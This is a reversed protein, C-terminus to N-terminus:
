RSATSSGSLYIESGAERFEESKKRLGAEIADGEDLGLSAAFDRV